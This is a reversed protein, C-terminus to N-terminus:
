ENGGRAGNMGEHLRGPHQHGQNNVSGRRLVDRRENRVRCM